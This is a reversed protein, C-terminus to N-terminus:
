RESAQGGVTGRIEIRGFLPACSQVAFNMKRYWTFTSVSKGGARVRDRERLSLPLMQFPSM